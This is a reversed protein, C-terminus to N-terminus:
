CFTNPNFRWMRYFRLVISYNMLWYNSYHLCSINMQFCRRNCLCYWYCYCYWNGEPLLFSYPFPKEIWSQIWNVKQPSCIDFCKRYTRSWSFVWMSFETSWLIAPYGKILYTRQFPALDSVQGFKEVLVQLFTICVM